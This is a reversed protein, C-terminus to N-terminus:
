RSVQEGARCHQCACRPMVDGPPLPVTPPVVITGRDSTVTGHRDVTYVRLTM